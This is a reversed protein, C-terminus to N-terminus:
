RYQINVSKIYLKRYATHHRNEFQLKPSSTSLSLTSTTYNSYNGSNYKATFDATSSGSYIRCTVDKNVLAHRCGHAATVITVPVDSPIHFTPSGIRLYSGSANDDYMYFESTGWSFTEAGWNSQDETWPHDGTNTPPVAMYPLGTIHFTRTGEYETGAFNVKASLTYSRWDSFADHVDGLSHANATGYSVYGDTAIVLAADKYAAYYVTKSYNTNDMLNAAISVSSGVEFLSQSPVSANATRSGSVANANNLDRGLAYDYTTKGTATVSFTPKESSFLIDEPTIVEGDTMTAALTVKYNGVPLFPWDTTGTLASGDSTGLALDSRLVTGDPKCISIAWSRIANKVLESKSFTTKVDTGDLQNGSYTHAASVSLGDVSPTFEVVNDSIVNGVRARAQYTVNATLGKFVIAGNENVATVPTSWDSSSSPIAEYVVANQNASSMNSFEAGNTVYARSAWVDSADIANMTIKPWSGSEKNCIFDYATKAAVSSLTYVFEAPNGASNSGKLALRLDAGSPVYFWQCYPAEYAGSNLIVKDGPAFHSALSEDVTVKMLANALGLQLFPTENELPNVTGSVNGGFFPAGFGNTGVSAEITYAGVPLVLPESWLGNGEYCINGDKDKVIFRVDTLSPSEIEFDVAKTQNLDDVTVDVDLVPAVLYGVERDASIEMGACSLFASVSFALIIGKGFINRFRSMNM